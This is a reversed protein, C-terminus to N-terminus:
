LVTLDTLVNLNFLNYKNSMNAFFISINATQSLTHEWWFNNFYLAYLCWRMIDSQATSFYVFLIQLYPIRLCIHIFCFVAWKKLLVEHAWYKCLAVSQPPTQLSGRITRASTKWILCWSTGGDTWVSTYNLWVARGQHSSYVGRSIFRVISVKTQPAAHCVGGGGPESRQAEHVPVTCESSM